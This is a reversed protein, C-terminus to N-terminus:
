GALIVVGHSMPVLPRSNDRVALGGVAVSNQPGVWLASPQQSTPVLGPGPATDPVRLM